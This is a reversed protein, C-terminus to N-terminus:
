PRMSRPTLALYGMAVYGAPLGIGRVANNIASAMRRPIPLRSHPRNEAVAVRTAAAQVHSHDVTLKVFDM